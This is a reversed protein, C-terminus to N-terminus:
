TSENTEGKMSVYIAPIFLEEPDAGILEIKKDGLKSYIDNLCEETDYDYINFGNPMLDFFGLNRADNITM